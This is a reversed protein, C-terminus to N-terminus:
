IRFGSFSTVTSHFYSNSFSSQLWVREGKSLYVTAHCSGMNYYNSYMLLYTYCVITGEKQMRMNAWKSISYAGTTGIFFYTGNVPATFHGTRSNYGGGQNNLVGDLKLIAGSTLTTNSSLRTHFSVSHANDLREELADTKDSVNAVYNLLQDNEAKMMELLEQQRAELMSFRSKDEDVEVSVEELLESDRPLCKTALEERPLSCTYNGGELPNPILLQFNGNDFNSSSLEKENPTRWAVDIPPHGRDSFNGCTLQIHWQGNSEDRVPEKSKTVELYGSQTKPTDVIKVWATKQYLTETGTQDVTTVAVSYNGSELITACSLEIGGDKLHALRGSFPSMPVFHDDAYTAMLESVKGEPQCTWVMGKVAERANLTYNWFLQINEGSCIELPKSTDQFRESWELGRYAALQLSFIMLYRFM